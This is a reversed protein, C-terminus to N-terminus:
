FAIKINLSKIKIKIKNNYKKNLYLILFIKLLKKLFM